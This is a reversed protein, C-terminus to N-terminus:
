FTNIENNKLENAHQQCDTNLGIYTIGFDCHLLDGPNIVDYKSKGDFAYLDSKGSKTHRYNSSVLNRAGYRYGNPALVLCYINQM